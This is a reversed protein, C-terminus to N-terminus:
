IPIILFNKRYKRIATIRKTRKGRTLILLADELYGEKRTLLGETESLYAQLYAIWTTSSEM